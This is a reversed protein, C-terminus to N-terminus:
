ASRGFPLLMSLYVVRPDDCHEAPGYAGADYRRIFERGSIGLYHRAASDLVGEAEQGSVYKVKEDSQLEEAM